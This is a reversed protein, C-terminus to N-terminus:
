AAVELSKLSSTVAEYAERARRAVDASAALLPKRVVTNKGRGHIALVSKVPAPSPEAYLVDILPALAHHIARARSIDGANLARHMEVFLRPHLHASAAIAGAGGQAITHFVMHDDGSLVCLQKDAILAGTKRIDGGCDKVARIFPLRALLRLTELEMSVGTRYPIDYVIIPLSAAAGIDRYFEVIAPQSPRVYYPPTILAGAISLGAIAELQACVDEATIGSAGVVIPLTGAAGIVCELVVKKEDESLTAPEGTTGFVVLGAIGADRLDEVIHRLTACDIGGSSTFPTVLPVWIGSFQHM